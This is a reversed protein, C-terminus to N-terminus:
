SKANHKTRLNPSSNELSPPPTEVRAASTKSAISKSVISKSVIRKSVIRKSVIRKPM